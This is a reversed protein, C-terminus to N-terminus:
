PQAADAMNERTWSYVVEGTALDPSAISLTGSEVGELAIAGFAPIGEERLTRILRLARHV